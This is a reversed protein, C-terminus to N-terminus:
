LPKLGLKTDCDMATVSGWQKMVSSNPTSFACYVTFVFFYSIYHLQLGQFFYNFVTLSM